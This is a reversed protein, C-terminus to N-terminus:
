GGGLPATALATHRAGGSGLESRFLALADVPAVGFDKGGDAALFALDPAGKRGTARVRGLTVHPRLPREEAPFGESVCAAEVADALPLLAPSSMGVWVVRPRALSPFAGVGAIRLEFAPAGRAVTQLRAALGAIRDAPVDGLFKLTLHLNESRTWAVGGITARLRELYAVVASRAPDAISVAVFARV